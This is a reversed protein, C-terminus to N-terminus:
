IHKLFKRDGVVPTHPEEQCFDPSGGSLGPERKVQPRSKDTRKRSGGQTLEAGQRGKEAPGQLEEHPVQHM